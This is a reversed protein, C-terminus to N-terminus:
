VRFNNYYELVKVLKELEKQKIFDEMGQWDIMNNKTPLLIKQKKVRDTFAKRGFAYKSKNTMVIHSIFKGNYQNLNENNLISIEDSATFVGQAFYCDCFTTILLKNESIFLPNSIFDTIGNNVSSASYYPIDGKRRDKEIHRKGRSVEFINEIEFSQWDSLIVKRNVGGVSM